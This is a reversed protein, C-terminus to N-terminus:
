WRKIPRKYRIIGSARSSFKVNFPTTRNEKPSFIFTVQMIGDVDLDTHLPIIQLDPEFHIFEINHLEAGSMNKAYIISEIRKGVEMIPFDGNWKKTCDVDEFYEFIREM